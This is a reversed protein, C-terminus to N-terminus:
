MEQSRGRVGAAKVKSKRRNPMKWSCLMRLAREKVDVLKWEFIRGSARGSWRAEQEGRGVCELSVIATM